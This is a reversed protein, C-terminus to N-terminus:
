KLLGIFFLAALVAIFIIGVTVNVAHDEHHEHGQNDMVEGTKETEIVKASLCSSSKTILRRGKLKPDM